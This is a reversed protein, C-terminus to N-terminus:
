EHSEEHLVWINLLEGNNYTLYNKSREYNVHIEPKTTQNQTLPINQYSTIKLWSLFDLILELISWFGLIPKVGWACLKKGKWVKNKTQDFERLHYCIDLIQYFEM